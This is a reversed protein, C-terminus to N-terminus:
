DTRLGPRLRGKRRREDVTQATIRYSTRVRYDGFDDVQLGIAVLVAKGDPRAIRRVVESNERRHPARGAFAPKAIAVRLWEMCVPYDDPHDEAIPRRAQESLRVNGPALDTGLARNIVAV